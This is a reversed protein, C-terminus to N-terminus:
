HRHPPNEDNQHKHQIGPPLGPQTESDYPPLSCDNEPNNSDVVKLRYVKWGRGTNALYLGIGVMTKGHTLEFATRYSSSPGKDDSEATLVRRIKEKPFGKVSPPFKYEALKQQLKETSLKKMAESDGAILASMFKEAVLAPGSPDNPPGASKAIIIGIFYICAVVLFGTIILFIHPRNKENRTEQMMDEFRIM